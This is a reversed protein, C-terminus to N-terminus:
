LVHKETIQEAMQGVTKGILPHRYWPAIEKLPLLVFDRNQMDIHPITLSETDMVLDDYLLIDLDLTRPGWHILRQRGNENEIVHLFDLLEEPEYYTEILVAGNVFDAQEVDGYPTSIVLGSEKLLKCCSDEKIRGIAQEIIKKSEGMNSGIGIAAIHRKRKIVVSVSEFERNIPANPKRLELEIEQIRPFEHLISIVLHEAAAEILQYTNKTLFDAIYDALEAYSVSKTLDDELGSKQLPLFFVANVFFDQGEEQEFAFVGHHAFIKLNDIKIKDM